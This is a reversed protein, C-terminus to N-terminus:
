AIVGAADQDLQGAARRLTRAIALAGRPRPRARDSASARSGQHGLAHGGENSPFPKTLFDYAGAKVAAVATDVDAFATMMVVEVDPWRQKVQVLLERGTMRPMLLDTLIVHAPAGDRARRLAAVGDEATTM